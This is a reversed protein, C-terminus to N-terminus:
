SSVVPAAFPPLCAPPCLSDWMAPPGSRTAYACSSDHAGFLAAVLPVLLPRRSRSAAASWRAHTWGALLLSDRQRRSAASRRLQCPRQIQLCVRRRQHPLDQRTLHYRQPFSHWSSLLVHRGIPAVAHRGVRAERVSVRSSEDEFEREGVFSSRLSCCSLPGLSSSHPPPQPQQSSCATLGHVFLRAVSAAAAAGRDGM